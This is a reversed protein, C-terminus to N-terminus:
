NFVQTEANTSCNKPESLTNPKRKKSDMVLFAGDLLAAAIRDPCYPRALTHSRHGRACTHTNTRDRVPHGLGMALAQIPNAERTLFRSSRPIAGGRITLQTDQRQAGLQPIAADQAFVTGVRNGRRQTLTGRPHCNRASGRDVADEGSM